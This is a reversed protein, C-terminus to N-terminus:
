RLHIRKLSELLRKARFYNYLGSFPLPGDGRGLSSINLYIDNDNFICTILISLGAFKPERYYAVLNDLEVTKNLRKFKKTILNHLEVKNNAAYGGRVKVLANSFYINTFLWLAIVILITYTLFLSINQSLSDTAIKLFIYCVFLSFGVALLLFLYDFVYSFTIKYALRQRQISKVINLPYLTNPM